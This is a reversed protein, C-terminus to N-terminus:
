EGQVHVIMDLDHLQTLKAVQQVDAPEHVTIALTRLAPLMGGPRSLFREFHLQTRFHDGRSVLRTLHSQLTPSDALLTWGMATTGGHQELSQLPPWAISSQERVWADDRDDGHARPLATLQAHLVLHRLKPCSSLLTPLWFTPTGDGSLILSTLQSGITQLVGHASLPNRAQLSADCFCGNPPGARWIPTTGAIRLWVGILLHM